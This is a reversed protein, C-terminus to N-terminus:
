SAAERTLTTFPVKSEVSWRLARRRCAMAVAVGSCLLIWSAPEPVEVNGALGLRNAASSAIPSYDLTFVVSSYSDGPDAGLDIEKTAGPSLSFDPESGTAYLQNAIDDLLQSQSPDIFYSSPLNTSAQINTFYATQNELNTIFIVGDEKKGATVKVQWPKPIAYVINNALIFQPTVVNTGKGGTPVYIVGNDFDGGKLVKNGAHFDVGKGGSGALANGYGWTTSQSKAPDVTQNLTVDLEEANVGNANGNVFHYYAMDPDARASGVAFGALLIATIIIRHM